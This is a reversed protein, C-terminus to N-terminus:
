RSTTFKYVLTPIEICIYECLINHISLSQLPYIVYFSLYPRTNYCKGGIIAGFALVIMYIDSAVGFLSLLQYPVLRDLFHSFLVVFTLYQPLYM